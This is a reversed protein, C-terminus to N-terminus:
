IGKAKLIVKITRLMIRIDFLIVKYGPHTHYYDAYQKDAAGARIIAPNKYSQYNGTIGAPVRTKDIVGDNILMEFVECNVPRPGVVSMRGLLVNYFQPLEDMYIQKLIWGVKTISGDKEFHKTHILEGKNRLELVREHKFINFKYIQFPQGYSMRTESYFFPDLPRGRLIQELKILVLFTISFPLTIFLITLSMLIDVLRKSKHILYKESTDM